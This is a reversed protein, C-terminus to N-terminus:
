FLVIMDHLAASFYLVCHYSPGPFAFWYFVQPLNLRAIRLTFLLDVIIFNFNTCYFKSWLCGIAVELLFSVVVVVHYSWTWPSSREKAKAVCAGM